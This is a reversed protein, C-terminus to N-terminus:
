FSNLYERLLTSYVKSYKNKYSFIAFTCGVELGDFECAKQWYFRLRSERSAMTKNRENQLQFDKVSRM